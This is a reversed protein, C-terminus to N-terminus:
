FLVDKVELPLINTRAHITPGEVRMSCMLYARSASTLELAIAWTKSDEIIGHQLLMQASVAAEHECCGGSSVM